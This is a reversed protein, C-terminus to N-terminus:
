KLFADVSVYFGEGDITFSLIGFENRDAELEAKTFSFGGGYCIMNEKHWYYQEGIGFIGNYSPSSYKVNDFNLGYQDFYLAFGCQVEIDNGILGADMFTFSKGNTTTYTNGIILKTKGETLSALKETVYASHFSEYKTAPVFVHNSVTLKYTDNEFVVNFNTTFADFVTVLELEKNYEYKMTTGNITVNGDKAFIITQGSAIERWEQCLDFDNSDTENTTDDNTAFTDDNTTDNTLVNSDTNEGVPPTETNGSENNCAVFSLCMVACLLLAIIKKM